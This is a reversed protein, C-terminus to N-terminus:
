IGIVFFQLVVTQFRSSFFKSSNKPSQCCIQCKSENQSQRSKFLVRQQTLFLQKTGVFRTKSHCLITAIPLIEMM